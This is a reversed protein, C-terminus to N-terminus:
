ADPEDDDAGLQALAQAVQRGGRWSDWCLIGLVLAAVGWAGFVYVAYGGMHAWTAIASM